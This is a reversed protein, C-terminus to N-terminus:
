GDMEQFEKIQAFEALSVGLGDCIKLITFFGPNKTSGDMIHTITTLPVTSRYSLEYYSLGKEQCLDDIRKILIKQSRDNRM